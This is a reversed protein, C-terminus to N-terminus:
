EDRGSRGDDWRSQLDETYFNRDYLENYRSWKDLNLLGQGSNTDSVSSARESMIFSHIGSVKSDLDDVMAVVQAELFKPRKPSGYELRGHHSLIIHKLIDKLDAPFGLIRSAKSEILEVGMTLHGILRGRQTYSIGSDINLEWVKGIDHFIGGFLLLDRNLFPYHKAMFEMIQSISLIHELLGGLWAHHVSKAAPARLLLSKIEPDEIVSLTLQQIHTNHISLVISKLEAFMELPDHRSQMLFDAMNLGSQDLGEVRSVVLQKRSQFLQVQGKVKVVQGVELLNAFDDVRDWIRTDVNGTKDGLLVAIFPRGNKGMSVNKEKVLFCAEISEKERLDKAWRRMPVEKESSTPESQNFQDTSM